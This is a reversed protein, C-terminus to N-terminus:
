SSFDIFLDNEPCVCDHVCPIQFPKLFISSDCVRHKNSTVHFLTVKDGHTFTYAPLQKFFFDSKM